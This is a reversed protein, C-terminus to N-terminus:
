GLHGGCPVVVATPATLVSLALSDNVLVSDANIIVSQAAVVVTDTNGRLDVEGNPCATLTVSGADATIANAGLGHLEISSVAVINVSSGDIKSTPGTFKTKDGKLEVGGKTGSGADGKGPTGGKIPGSGKIGHGHGEARIKVSGGNKGTQGPGGGGGPTGEVGGNIVVDGGTSEIVTPGGDKGAPTKARSGPGVKGGGAITVDGAATITVGTETPTLVQGAITISGGATIGSPNIMTGPITIGGTATVSNGDADLTGNVTLDTVTKNGELIVTSGAPITVRDAAGPVVGGVWTNPDDWKGTGPKATVPAPQVSVAGAPATAATSIVAVALAAIGLRCFIRFWNM